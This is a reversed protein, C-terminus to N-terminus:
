HLKILIDFTKYLFLSLECYSWLLVIHAPRWIPKIQVKKNTFTSLFSKLTDLSIQTHNRACTCMNGLDNSSLYMMLPWFNWTDFNSYIVFNRQLVNNLCANEGVKMPIEHLSIQWWLIKMYLSELIVQTETANKEEHSPMFTIESLMGFKM